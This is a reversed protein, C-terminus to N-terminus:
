KSASVNAGFYFGAALVTLDRLLTFAKENAPPAVWAAVFVSVILLFLIISSFIDKRFMKDFLRENAKGNLFYALEPTSSFIRVKGNGEVFCIETAEKNEHKLTLSALYGGFPNELVRLDDIKCKPYTVIYQAGIKQKIEDETM